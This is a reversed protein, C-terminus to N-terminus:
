SYRRSSASTSSILPFTKGGLAARRRITRIDHRRGRSASFPPAARQAHPRGMGTRGPSWPCVSMAIPLARACPPARQAARPPLNALRALAPPCRRVRPLSRLLSASCALRPTRRGSTPSSARAPCTCCGRAEQPVALLSVLCGVAESLQTHERSRAPRAILPCARQPRSRGSSPRRASCVVASTKSDFPPRTREKAPM